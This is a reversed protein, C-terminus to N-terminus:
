GSSSSPRFDPFSANHNHNSSSSSQWRSARRISEAAAANRDWGRSVLSDFVSRGVRCIMSKRKQVEHVASELGPLVEDGYGDQVLEDAITLVDPNKLVRALESRIEEFREPLGVLQQRDGAAHPVSRASSSGGVDDQQSNATSGSSERSMKGVSLEAHISSSTNNNNNQSTTSLTDFANPTAYNILNTHRM